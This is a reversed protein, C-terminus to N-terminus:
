GFVDFSAAPDPAVFSVVSEVNRVSTTFVPQREDSQEFPRSVLSETEVNRQEFEQVQALAANENRLADVSGRDVRAQEANEAQERVAEIHARADASLEDLTPVIKRASKLNRNVTTAAVGITSITGEGFGVLNEVNSQDRDPKRVSSTRAVLASTAAGNLGTGFEIAMAM